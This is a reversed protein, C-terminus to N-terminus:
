SDGKSLRALVDDHLVGNTTLVTSRHHVEEADFTSMRGGAEEVIVKLAAYDWVALSPELMIEAAGRAVLMHAWFDGFARDRWSDSVLGRMAGDYPGGLLQRLEAYLVHADSVHDVGSVAIPEGNLTAGGGRIAAYREGLAPASAVGVVGQGDVYLALLTGWIPVGRAFNATADIPDVIWVRGVADHSGGEEEGLVRDSPFRERIRQRVMAEVDLDARTVFTADAKRGIELDRARFFRLAIDAAGDALEHAFSLEDATV